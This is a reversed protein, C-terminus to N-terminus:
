PASVAGLEGSIEGLRLLAAEVRAQEARVGAVDPFAGLLPPNKLLYQAALMDDGIKKAQAGPLELGWIRSKLNGLEQRLANRAAQLTAFAAAIEARRAEAAAAEPNGATAASTREHMTPLPRPASGTPWLHVLLAIILAMAVAASVLFNRKNM